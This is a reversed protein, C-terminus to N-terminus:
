AEESSSSSPEDLDVRDALAARAAEDDPKAWLTEEPLTRVALDGAATRLRVAREAGAADLVLATAGKHEGALVEVLDGRRPQPMENPVPSTDLFLCKGVLARPLEASASQGHPFDFAVPIADQKDVDAAVYGREARRALLARISPPTKAAPAILVTTGACVFAKLRPLVYPALQEHVKQENWDPPPEPEERLVHYSAAERPVRLLCAGAVHLLKIRLHHEELALVACPVDTVRHPAGRKRFTLNVLLPTDLPPRLCYLLRADNFAPAAGPLRQVHDAHVQLQLPEHGRLPAQLKLLPGNPPETLLVSLSAEPLLKHRVAALFLERVPWDPKKRGKIDKAARLLALAAADNVLPEADSLFRLFAVHGRAFHGCLDADDLQLAVTGHARGKDGRAGYAIVKGKLELREKLERAFLVKSGPPPRHQLAGEDDLDQAITPQACPPALEVAAAPVRCQVAQPAAEGDLGAGQVWFEVVLEKRRTTQLVRGVPERLLWPEAGKPAALLKVLRGELDADPQQLVTDADVPVAAPRSRQWQQATRVFLDGTMLGQDTRGGDLRVMLEHDPEDAFHAARAAAGVIVAAGEHAVREEPPLFHSGPQLPLTASAGTPTWLKGSLTYLAGEVQREDSHLLRAEARVLLAARPEEAGLHQLCQAPTLPLLRGRNDQGLALLEQRRIERLRAKCLERTMFAGQRLRAVERHLFALQQSTAEHEARRRKDFAAERAPQPVAGLAALNDDTPEAQYADAASCAQSIFDKKFDRSTGDLEDFPDDSFRRKAM